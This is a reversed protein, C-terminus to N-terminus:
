QPEEKTLIARSLLTSFARERANAAKPGVASSRRRRDKPLGRFRAASARDDAHSRHAKLRISASSAVHLPHGGSMVLQQEAARHAEELTVCVRNAGEAILKAASETGNAQVGPRIVLIPTGPLKARLRRCIYRAQALGGPPISLICILDPAEEDGVHAIAGSALYASGVSEVSVKKPDFLQAWMGWIAEDTVTRASVGLVRRPTSRPTDGSPKSREQDGAIDSVSDVLAGISRLVFQHDAESIENRARDRGALLLAPIVVDDFVRGRSTARFGKELVEEAEAEDGSLLRQYVILSDELAPEDGLIVGLYSLRPVHKGLVALCVALPTSLVLGVPGWLWSWFVASVLMAISSLGTKASIVVPEVVYATLLELGLFLGLTAM